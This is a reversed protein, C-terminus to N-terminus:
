ISHACQKSDSVQIQFRAEGNIATHDLTPCNVEMLM